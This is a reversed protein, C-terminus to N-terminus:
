RGLAEAQKEGSELMEAVTMKSYDPKQQNQVVAASPGGRPVPRRQALPVTAQRRAPELMDAVYETVFESILSEDGSDYRRKFTAFAEPDAQADPMSAGFAARLKKTQGATLTPTGIEAAFAADLAVLFRDAQQNYVHDRAESLSAGQDVFRKVQELFEPTIGKLHRFQPLSYFANAVKEAELDDASPVTVGALAAIRKDRDALQARLTNLEAATRNILQESKKLQDPPVWKSRDEAYSFQTPPPTAAAPQTAAAPPPTTAAPPQTTAPPQTGAPPEAGSGAAADPSWLRGDPTSGNSCSLYRNFM